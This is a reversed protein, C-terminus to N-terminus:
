FYIPQQGRHRTLASSVGSLKFRKKKKLHHIYKTLSLKNRVIIFYICLIKLTPKLTQYVYSQYCKTKGECLPSRSYQKTGKAAIQRNDASYTPRKRGSVLPFDRDTMMCSNWLSLKLPWSFWKSAWVLGWYWSPSTHREVAKYVFMKELFMCDCGACAESQGPRCWRSSTKHNPLLKWIMSVYM